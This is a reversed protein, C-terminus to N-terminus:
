VPVGKPGMLPRLVLLQQPNKDSGTVEFFAVFKLLLRRFNISAARWECPVKYRNGEM